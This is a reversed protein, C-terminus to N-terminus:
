VQKFIAYGQLTLFYKGSQCGSNDFKDTTEIMSELDSKTHLTVMMLKMVTILYPIHEPM